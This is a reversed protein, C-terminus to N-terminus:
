EGYITPFYSQITIFPAVTDVAITAGLGGRFEGVRGVGDRARVRFAYVGDGDQATFTRNNAGNGGPLNTLWDRWPGNNFSFQLDYSTINSGPVPEGFWQVVFSNQTAIPSTFPIIHAEPNGVSITTQAQAGGPFPQVNGARDVARVRFGYQAGVLADAITHSAQTTVSTLAQWPGGNIQFQVDYHAIGSLADTGSWSVTFNRTFTYQPLANVSSTPPITDVTTRAQPNNPFAEVNNARDVARARFEYLIGNQGTFTASTNTVATQWNQWNGGNQRMQVDFHRIGTGGPNDTGSWNVNFSATSWQPLATMSSTPPTTDVNVNYTVVIRPHLGNNANITTFVRERQQPTEDGQVMIGFNPRTGSVWEQVSSTISAQIWGTTAPLQGIGIEAGWSPNFNAWTLTSADWSSSLFRALAGMNVDAPPSFANQFVRLNAATVTANSPISDMPFFLFARQAGNGQAINFGIRMNPDNSWNTTPQNSTTFTDAGVPIEVTLTTMDGSRSESLVVPKLTAAVEADTPYPGEAAQEQPLAVATTLALLLFILLSVTFMRPGRRAARPSQSDKM